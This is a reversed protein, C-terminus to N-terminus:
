CCSSKEARIQKGSHLNINNKQNLSNNNSAFNTKEHKKKIRMSIRQFIKEVNINKKSSAELYEM